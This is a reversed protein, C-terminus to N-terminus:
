IRRKAEGYNGGDMGTPVFIFGRGECGQCTKTGHKLTGFGNCVPCEQAYFKPEIEKVKIKPPDEMRGEKKVLLFAEFPRARFYAREESAEKLM